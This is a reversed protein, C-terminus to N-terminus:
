PQEPVRDRYALLDVLGQADIRPPATWPAFIRMVVLGFLALLAMPLAIVAIQFGSAGGFAAAVLLSPASLLSVLGLGFWVYRWSRREGMTIACTGPLAKAIAGILARQAARDPAGPQTIDFNGGISHWRGDVCLDFRRLLRRRVVHEALIAADIADIELSWELAGSKDHCRVSGAELHYTKSCLFTTAEFVLATM